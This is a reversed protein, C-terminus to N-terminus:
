SQGGELQQMRGRLVTALGSLPASLVYHLRYLPARLGGAMLAVLTERSPLAALRAVDQGQLLREHLLAGRIVLNLRTSRIHDLLAKASERGDGPGSLIATPGDLLEKLSAKGVKDAALRALTNKVVHYEAGAARVQHRLQNVDSATLGRYDTVIVIASESLWQAVKEVTERKKETPM